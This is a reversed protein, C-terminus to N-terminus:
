KEPPTRKPSPFCGQQIFHVYNLWLLGRSTRTQMKEWQLKQIYIGTQLLSLQMYEQVTSHCKFHIPIVMMGVTHSSNIRRQTNWGQSMQLFRFKVTVTFITRKTECPHWKNNGGEWWTSETVDHVIVEKVLGILLNLYLTYLTSMVM